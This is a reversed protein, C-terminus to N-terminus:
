VNFDSGWSTEVTVDEFSIGQMAIQKLAWERDQNVSSHAMRLLTDRNLAEAIDEIQEEIDRKIEEKVSRAKRRSLFVQSTFEQYKEVDSILELNSSVAKWTDSNRNEVLSDVIKGLATPNKITRLVRLGLTRAGINNSDLIMLLKDPFERSEKVTELYRLAMNQSVPLNSEIMLLWYLPMKKSDFVYNAALDNIAGNPATLMAKVLSSNSLVAENQEILKIFFDGQQSNMRAISGPSIQKLLKNSFDTFSLIRELGKMPVADLNEWILNAFPKWGMFLQEFKEKNRRWIPDCSDGSLTILHSLIAHSDDIRIASTLAELYVGGSPDKSNLYQLISSNLEEGLLQKGLITWILDSAGSKKSSLFGDVIEFVREQTVSYGRMHSVLPIAFFVFKEQSDLSLVDLLGRQYKESTEIGYFAFLETAPWIYISIREKWTDFPELNTQKAVQFFLLDRQPTQDDWTGNPIYHWCYLLFSTAIRLEYANLKKKSYNTNVWLGILLNFSYPSKEVASLVLDIKESDESILINTIEAAPILRLLDNNQEIAKWIEAQVEASESSFLTRITSEKWPFVIEPYAKSLALAFHTIASNFGHMNSVWNKYYELEVENLVGFTAPTLTQNHRSYRDALEVKRSERDRIVLMNKGYVIRTVLQQYSLYSEEPVQLNSHYMDAAWLVHIKFFTAPVTDPSAELRNLLRYGKRMLYQLTGIRPFRFGNFEPLKSLENMKWDDATGPMRNLKTAFGELRGYGFGLAMVLDGVLFPEMNPTIEFYNDTLTKLTMKFAGFYGASIPAIILYNAILNISTEDKPVWGDHFRDDLERGLTFIQDANFSDPVETFDIEAFGFASIKYSQFHFGESFLGIRVAASADDMIQHMLDSGEARSSVEHVQWTEGDASAKLYNRNDSEIHVLFPNAQWWTDFILVERISIRKFEGDNATSTGSSSRARKFLAMVFEGRTFFRQNGRGGVEQDTNIVTPM